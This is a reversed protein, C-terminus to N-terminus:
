SRFNRHESKASGTYHSLQNLDRENGSSQATGPSMRPPNTQGPEFNPAFQSQATGPSTRPPDAQPVDIAETQSTLWNTSNERVLDADAM